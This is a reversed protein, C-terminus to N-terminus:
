KFLHRIFKVIEVLMIVIVATEFILLHIQPLLNLIKGMSRM